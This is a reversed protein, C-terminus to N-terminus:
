LLGWRKRLLWEAGLALVFLVFLPTTNWVEVESRLVVRREQRPLVRALDAIAAPQVATGGTRAAIERLFDADQRTDAFEASYADVAFRATARGILRGGQTATATAEYEGPGLGPLSGAYEGPHGPRRQPALTGETRGDPEARRVDVRVDADDLPALQADLVQALFDVPEGSEFVNKPVMLQVPQVDRPQVLWRVLASTFDTAARQVPERDSLGWRWYPFGNLVATQGQGHRGVVLCPAAPDEETALLVLAGADATLDLRGLLPAASQLAGSATAIGALSSTAPHTRGQPTLRVAFRGFRAGRGRGAGVPLAEAWASGSAAPADRGAILLL